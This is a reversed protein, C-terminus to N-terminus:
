FKSIKQKIKMGHNHLWDFPNKASQSGHHIDEYSHNQKILTIFHIWVNSPFDTLVYSQISLIWFNTKPARKKKAYSCTSEDTKLNSSLKTQVSTTNLLAREITIVRLNSSLRFARPFFYPAVEKSWRNTIQRKFKVLVFLMLNLHLSWWHCGRM